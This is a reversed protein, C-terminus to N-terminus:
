IGRGSVYGKVILILYMFCSLFVQETPKRFELIFLGSGTNRSRKFLGPISERGPPAYPVAFRNTTGARWAVYVPPISKPILEQAGYVNVFVPETREIHFFM